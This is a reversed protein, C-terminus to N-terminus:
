KRPTRRGGNDRRSRRLRPPRTGQQRRELAERLRASLEAQHYPKHIFGVRAVIKDPDDYHSSYGSTLVIAVEPRRELLWRALDLGGFAGPMVIDSFVLDVDAHVELTERAGEADAAEIVTYGLDQLMSCALARVAIDDEVILVTEEGRRLAVMADDSSQDAMLEAAACPLYFTVETGRGQRSQLEVHGGSQRIFGYVMALGLGTGRGTEKTSFFPEFARRLVQPSMGEGTDRMVVQVYHGPEIDADGAVRSDLQRVGTEIRLRGGSPMADRANAAINLLATEFQNRDILALPLAHTLEYAMEVRPGVARQLLEELGILVRNIDVAEPELRQKRAFTLLQATLREARALASLTAEVRRNENGEGMERRLLELNGTAVTLLNNFDHSIGATLQGLVEMKQAQRLREQEVRRTTIDRLSALLVPRGRWSTKVVRIEAEIPGDHPRLLSIETTEGNVVPIGVPSGILEGVSRGFMSEAAPNAFLVVGNEDLLVIADANKEILLSFEPREFGEPGARGTSSSERM